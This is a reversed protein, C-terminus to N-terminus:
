RTDSSASRLPLLASASASASASPVPAFATTDGRRMAATSKTAGASGEADDLPEEITDVTPPAIRSRRHEVSKRQPPKECEGNIEEVEAATAQDLAGPLSKSRPRDVMKKGDVESMRRNRLFSM